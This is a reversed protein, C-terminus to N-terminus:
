GGGGRNVPITCEVIYLMAFDASFQIPGYRLRNGLLFQITRWPGSLFSLQNQEELPTKEKM